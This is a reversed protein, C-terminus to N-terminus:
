ERSNKDTKTGIWENEEFGDDTGEGNRKIVSM